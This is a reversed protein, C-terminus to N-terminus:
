VPAGHRQRPVHARRSQVRRRKTPPAEAEKEDPDGGHPPVHAPARQKKKGQPGFEGRMIRTRLMALFEDNRKSASWYNWQQGFVTRGEKMFHPMNKQLERLLDPASREVGRHDKWTAEVFPKAKARPVTQAFSTGAQAGVHELVHARARRQAAPAVAPQMSLALAQQLEQSESESESEESSPITLPQAVSGPVQAGQNKAKYADVQTKLSAMFPLDQRVGSRSLLEKNQKARVQKLLHVKQDRTLNIADIKRLFKKSHESEPDVHRGSGKGPAITFDTSPVPSSLQLQARSTSGLIGSKQPTTPPAMNPKQAPPMGTAGKKRDVVDSRLLRNDVASVSVDHAVPPKPLQGIGKLRRM